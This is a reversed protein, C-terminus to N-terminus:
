VPRLGSAGSGDELSLDPTGDLYTYVESGLTFFINVQKEDVIVYEVTMTVGNDTQSQGIYQIFDNEVAAKLSPSFAM